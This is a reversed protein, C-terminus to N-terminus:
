NVAGDTPTMTAKTKAQINSKQEPKTDADSIAKKESVGESRLSLSSLSAKLSRIMLLHSPRDCFSKAVMRMEFLKTLIVM